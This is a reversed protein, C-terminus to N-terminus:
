TKEGGAQFVSVSLTISRIYINDVGTPLVSFHTCYNIVAPDVRYFSVELKRLEIFRSADGIIFFLFRPVHSFVAESFCNLFVIFCIFHSQDSHIDYYSPADM